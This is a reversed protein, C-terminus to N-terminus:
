LKNIREEVEKLLDKNIGKGFYDIKAALSLKGALIRAAKGRKVKPLKQLLPHNFIHGHKPSKGKKKLHNFLAKEAGLLQMTSSPVFALRRKSGAEALLRAGIISGAILTFSPLEENMEKELFSMLDKKENEIATQNEELTTIMKKAIEDPSRKKWEDLNEKMLNNVEELDDLLRIARIIHVEKGSLNEDIQQKAKKLLRRRLEKKDM